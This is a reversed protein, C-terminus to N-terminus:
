RHELLDFMRGVIVVPMAGGILRKLTAVEEASLEVDADASQLKVALRFAAYKDDGSKEPAQVLCAICVTRFTVRSGDPSTIPTGDVNTLPSDVRYQM